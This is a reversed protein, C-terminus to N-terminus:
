GQGWSRGEGGSFLDEGAPDWVAHSPWEPSWLGRLGAVLQSTDKGGGGGGAGSLAPSCLVSTLKIERPTRHGPGHSRVCCTGIQEHSETPHGWFGRMDQCGIPRLSERHCTPAPHVSRGPVAPADREERGFSAAASPRAPRPPSMEWSPSPPLGEPAATVSMCVTSLKPEAPHARSAHPAPTAPVRPRALM